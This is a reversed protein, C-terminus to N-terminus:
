FTNWQAKEKSRLFEPFVLRQRKVDATTLHPREGWVVWGYISYSNRGKKLILSLNCIDWLLFSVWWAQLRFCCRIIMPRRRFHVNWFIRHFPNLGCLYKAKQTCFLACISDIDGGSLLLDSKPAAASISTVRTEQRETRQWDPSHSATQSFTAFLHADNVSSYIRRILFKIGDCLKEAPDHLYESARGSVWDGWLWKGTQWLDTAHALQARSTCGQHM